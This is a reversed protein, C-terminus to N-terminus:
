RFSRSARWWFGDHGVPMSLALDLHVSAYILDMWFAIGFLTASRASFFLFEGVPWLLANGLQVSAFAGFANARTPRQGMYDVRLLGVVYGVM